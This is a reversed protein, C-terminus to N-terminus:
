IYQADCVDAIHEPCDWASDCFILEPAIGVRRQGHLPAHSAFTLPLAKQIGGIENESGATTASNLIM